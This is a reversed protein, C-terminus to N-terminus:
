NTDSFIQDAASSEASTCKCSSASVFHVKHFLTLSTTCFRLFNSLDQTTRPLTHMVIECKLIKEPLLHNNQKGFVYCLWKLDKLSVFWNFSRICFLSTDTMVMCPELCCGSNVHNYPNLPIHGVIWSSLWKCIPACYGNNERVQYM